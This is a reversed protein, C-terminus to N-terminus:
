ETPATTQPVARYFRTDEASADPDVFDISGQVVQNTCLPTWTRMDRSFDIRFWAGDPGSSRLHFCKDSLMGTSTRARQSDVLIGAAKRQAGVQYTVPSAASPVLNIVISKIPEAIDDEVPVISLTVSREGAPIVAKGSLPAYDVGNVATGTVEYNVELAENTAGIRRIVFSADKPGCTRVLTINEAKWDTWTMTRNTVAPRVWCNTGEIAVPDRALVMVMAPYVPPPPVATVVELKVPASTSGLEQSDKVVATLVYGGVPPNTWVFTYANKPEPYASTLLSNTLPWAKGLSIGNTFFEVNLRLDERDCAYVHLPLNVPTRVVAGSPPSTIRAVPATNEMLEDDLIEAIAEKYLGLQYCSPPPPFIAICAMPTLSVKVTETGEKLSDDIPDVTVRAVVEGAPIIVKGPLLTYDVGNAATGTVEYYVELSANTPGSRHFVFVAPDHRQVIDLWSPVLPIETAIPDVAKVDVTPMRPYADTILARAKNPMGIQYDPLPSMLMSPVVEIIVDEDPEPITDKLAKVVIEASYAGSPITVIDPLKEYDAGNIATGSIKLFVTLPLEPRSDRSVLFLAVDPALMSDPEVARGDLTRIIVTTTSTFQGWSTALSLLLLLGARSLVRM